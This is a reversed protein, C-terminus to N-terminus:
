RTKSGDFWLKWPVPECFNLETLEPQESPCPHDALFDALAQGKIAKQSVYELCFETLALSWKGIKGRLIPRSLMYKILDTNSIVLVTRPLLYYRLKMAAFYLTLCFKEVVSYKCEVSNLFRSLYYIAQEKGFDNDQALLVGMSEEAAALYLKLPRDERPPM